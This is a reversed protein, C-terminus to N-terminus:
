LKTASGSLNKLNRLKFKQLFRKNKTAKPTEEAAASASPTPLSPRRDEELPLEPSARSEPLSIFLFIRFNLIRQLYKSHFSPETAPHQPFPYDSFTEEECRRKGNSDGDDIGTELSRSRPRAAFRPPLYTRQLRPSSAPHPLAARKVPSAGPSMVGRNFNGGGIIPPKRGHIAPSPSRVYRAPSESRGRYNQLFAPMLLNNSSLPLKSTSNSPTGPTVNGERNANLLNGRSGSLNQEVGTMFRIAKEVCADQYDHIWRVGNFYCVARMDEPLKETEPWQFNDIIPIINCKAELAAVIEKHVWDKTQDDGICRDLANPTLVLLFHKAQRISQLLNNDFKGAELREVDIFVSFGRLQMHVKLLSALQSGTSRRYSIFVDLPKNEDVSTDNLSMEEKAIADILKLRHIGNRIGCEQALIDEVMFNSKLLSRRLGAKLIGYTHVALEPDLTCLYENLERGECSAYDAVKKLQDLERMFRRRLIGNDIKIDDKLDDETIQLLLDGDVRSKLFRETYTGFGIQKIWECVDESTWLPVQQSLKHPVEEGILRLAQAAYKSAFGHPSSAVQKLSEIAGIERFVGVCGQRKKLGAEMAFHFAALNRAEERQSQLIPVLRRLWNKSQGRSQSITSYAFTEPNHSEVFPEVMKLAESKLVDAELEKNAVLAAIALCAYYKINDDGHFALPFLWMPVKRKIMQQQNESGGYLSLNALASACHRLTEVDNRRCEYLLADLGGLRIVDACTSESHKLLHELIGTRCRSYDPCNLSPSSNTAVGHMVKELGNEVVYTRNETTMAQELVQASSLLINEEKAECNSIMIDLGKSERLTESLATGVSSTFPLNPYMQRDVFCELLDSGDKGDLGHGDVAWAKQLLEKINTLVSLSSSTTAETSQLETVLSAVAMKCRHITEEKRGPSPDRSLRDLADYLAPDVRTSKASEIAGSTAVMSGNLLKASRFPTYRLVAPSLSRNRKSSRKRVISKKKKSSPCRTVIVKPYEPIPYPALIFKDRYSSPPPFLTTKPPLPMLHNPDAKAKPDEVDSQSPSPSRRATPSASASRTPPTPVPSSM